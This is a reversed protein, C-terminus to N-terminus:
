VKYFAELEKKLTRYHHNGERSALYEVLTDVPEKNVEVTLIDDYKNPLNWSYTRTVDNYEMFDFKLGEAIHLKMKIEKNNCNHIIELPEKDAIKVLSRKIVEPESDLLSPEVQRAIANLEDVDATRIIWFAEAKFDLALTEERLKKRADARYFVPKHKTSRFPNSGNEDMRMVFIYSDNNDITFEAKGDEFVLPGIVPMDEVLGTKPNEKYQYGVVNKIQKRRGDGKDLISRVGSLQYLSPVGVPNGTQPDTPVGDITVARELKDMEYLKFVAKEGERLPKVRLKESLIKNNYFEQTEVTAM